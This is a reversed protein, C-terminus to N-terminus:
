RWLLYWVARTVVSTTGSTTASCRPTSAKEFLPAKRHSGALVTTELSIQAYFIAGSRDGDREEKCSWAAHTM